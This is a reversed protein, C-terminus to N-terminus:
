FKSDSRQHGAAPREVTSGLNGELVPDDMGHASPSRLSERLVSSFILGDSTLEFPPRIRRRDLEHGVAWWHVLQSLVSSQRVFAPM